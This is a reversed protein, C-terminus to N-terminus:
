KKIIKSDSPFASYANRCGSASKLVAKLSGIGLKTEILVPVRNNDNSVWLFLSEKKDQFAKGDIAFSYKVTSIKEGDIEVKETGRYTVKINFSEDTFLVLVSTKQNVTMTSPNLSRVFYLLSVPDYFCKQSTLTTDGRFVNNRYHTLRAKVTENALYNYFIEEYSNTKGEHAAKSYFLPSFNPINVISTLTDSVHMLKNAAGTTKVTLRTRYSPVGKYTYAQTTINANAAKIWVFKWNFHVDYSFKESVSFFNTDIKCQASLTTLFVTM